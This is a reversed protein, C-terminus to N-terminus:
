YKKEKSGNELIQHRQLGREDVGRPGFAERKKKSESLRITNVKHSSKRTSWRYGILIRHPYTVHNVTVSSGRRAVSTTGNDAAEPGKIEPGGHRM